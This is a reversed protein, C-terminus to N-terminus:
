FTIKVKDSDVIEGYLMKKSEMNRVKIVDGIYGTEQAMGKTVIKFGNTQIFLKVVTGQMITPPIEVVNETLITNPQIATTTVKGILDDISSFAFGHVNTTEKRAMFVNRKTLQQKRDIRKKAVAVYEYVRVKFFVPIKFFRTGDSSASVILEVNGRDKNTDVLSIDLDIRDRRRPIWQDNPMRVLEITTERDAVPLYSSLYEEAKQSIEAGTLKTSEVTVVVSKANTFIVDEANINSSYLRMRMFDLDIRRASNAWPTTGIEIEKIKSVLETDDGSVTSVDSFTIAKEELVVNDMLNIEIKGALAGPMLILMSLLFFLCIRTNM